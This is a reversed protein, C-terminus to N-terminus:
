RETTFGADFLEARTPVWLNKADVSFAHELFGREIGRGGLYRMDKKQEEVPDVTQFRFPMDFSYGHFGLKAGPLLVRKKGAAFVLTCASYCYTEVQTTLTRVELLKAISRGAFVIGGNSEISIRTVKPHQNLMILLAQYMLYNVEGGLRITNGKLKASFDDNGFITKARPEIFYRTAIVDILQFGILVVAAIVGLYLMWANNGAGQEARERTARRMGGVVQWVLLAAIGVVGLNGQWYPWNKIPFTSVVFSIGLLNVYLTVGFGLRGMWHDKFYDRM